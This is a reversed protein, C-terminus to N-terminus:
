GVDSISLARGYRAFVLQRLRAYTANQLDPDADILKRADERARVLVEEDRVIDAIMLPPFGSQQTSFLNGPGRIQLDIEALDFGSDNESFATLRQNSEPDDSSAFVCVFGPHQGRCVRGRLQHLQSLGFREASEITMVTANGVDIGVEVVTTSVLVQTKGNAFDAMAADKQEATQRGHLVDVRFDSFPGNALSEFMREASSLQEDDDGAVLPAIVFAQRGERLKKKVFEWWKERSDEKGLYTNVKQGIGNTRKLTSVDLDGFLTMSITRPIPTATMVLYHPDFGSQKLTARQKVGFKHQEDIVVLGLRKFPVKSAVVAQTGIVIDVEGNEILEATEKRAKGKVGGTWLAFRVRTNGLLKQITNFHQNALVATPAMLTAQHGDAVALLMAAVAVATKGSGVEGHLLRNMPWPQNMDAAIETLAQSQTETLEFPLRGLIRARIKPTMEIEPAKNESRIRHRRIALALQLIFLEQYVLRARASEVQEQNKPSHIQRIAESIGCLDLSERLEDPFAETVLDSCQQVVAGVIKRMQKQNIGDTLKYVPMLCQQQQGSDETDLWTVKPHNMQFRGGQWKAKGQLMVKQGPWFKRMLFQQNFWVARLYKDEQKILVYCIHVGSQGIQQDVDDVVGVVNALQENAMEGLTHLQTFDQYNRPFFFLVDAANRLNLKELMEVRAPGVGKLFQIPQTLLEMPSREDAAKAPSSPDLNPKSSAESM